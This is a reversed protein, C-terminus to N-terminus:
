DAKPSDDESEGLLYSTLADDLIELYDVQYKTELYTTLEDHLEELAEDRPDDGDMQSEAFTVQLRLSAALEDEEGSEEDWEGPDFGLIDRVHSSEIIRYQQQIYEKLEDLSTLGGQKTKLRMSVTMVYHYWKAM